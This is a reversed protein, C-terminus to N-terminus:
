RIRMTIALRRVFDRNGDLIDLVLLEDPTVWRISEFVQNDPGGSISGAICYHVEYSNGDDYHSVEREIRTIPGTTIRLEERLERQLGDLVSEGPEVKGGPFEWKLPYRSTHKRQCVLVRSNRIIVAVAVTIM